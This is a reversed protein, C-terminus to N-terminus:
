LVLFFGAPVWRSGKLFEKFGAPDWCSGLLFGRFSATGAPVRKYKCSGLLFWARAIRLPYQMPKVINMSIAKGLIFPGYQVFHLVICYVRICGWRGGSDSM